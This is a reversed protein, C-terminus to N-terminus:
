DSHSSSQPNKEQRREIWWLAGAVIVMVAALLVEYLFENSTTPDNPVIHIKAASKTIWGNRLGNVIVHTTNSPGVWQPSYGTRFIVLRGPASVSAPTGVLVLDQASLTARATIGAYQEISPQGIGKADAYLFLTISTTGADPNVLMINHRWGPGTSLPATAACRSIPQEWLCFRPPAGELSREWLQLVLPGSHWSLAKVECASDVTAILEIASAGGPATHAVIAASLFQPPRVPQSEYCNQLPGWVGSSFNGDRLLANGLPVHVRAVQEGSTTSTHLTMKAGDLHNSVTSRLSYNWGVPVTVRTYLSVQSYQWDTISPLQFLAVHGLRPASTVLVTRKPVLTLERLDPATTGVTAFNTPSQRYAGRLEFLALPGDHHVLEMEPDNALAAALAAPSVISRGPFNAEIDGRILVIPTGIATLLRGAESWEHDLLATAELQIANTLDASVTFYGQGGSVVVHRSLLNAIFADNGYYWTYPMQYYDDPPLVLLSGSPSSSSNLYNATANWYTPVKVRESPFGQRPGAITSGTWLPFSGVLAVVVIAVAVLASSSLRWEPRGGFLRGVEAPRITIFTQIQEVLLGGLLAFGLAAVILFRGPEQLLWGYPLHYLPDFLLNGPPRTGTSFFIVGLAGLALFGRLRWIGQGLNNSVRRLALGSFAILPILAPILDLPFRGFDAAYSFYQSFSWGWTTNLWLGNTLTSRSETFAWSSLSSLQGTAVSGVALLAPVIWYACAAILLAGAILVGGVARRAADRGFRIWVLLPTIATTLALMGVVPPNSYIFGVFPAVVVFAACIQWLRIRGCGYSIVAAALAPVLVMVTLYNDYVGVQSMTMPSFFYVLAVVTGAMPSFRLSRALAGAAMLIAGILMSFWIRQALAGSGGLLHTSWDVAAWPLQGQNNMPAGLTAGSWGFTSFVRGIWATGIPPTIDGGAIATGSRFWIQTILVGTLGLGLITWRWAAARLDQFQESNIETQPGRSLLMLAAAIVLGVFGIDALVSQLSGTPLLEAVGVGVLGISAAIVRLTLLRSLEPTRRDLNGPVEPSGIFNSDDKVEPM